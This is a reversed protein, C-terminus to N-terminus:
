RLQLAFATIHTADSVRLAQPAQVEFLIPINLANPCTLQAQLLGYQM